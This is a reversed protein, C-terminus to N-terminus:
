LVKSSFLDLVMVNVNFSSQIGLEILV